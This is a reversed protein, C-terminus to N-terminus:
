TYGVRNSLVYDRLSTSVGHRHSFVCLWCRHYILFEELTCVCGTYGARNSDIDLWEGLGVLIYALERDSVCKGRPLRWYMAIRVKGIRAMVGQKVIQTMGVRTLVEQKTIRVVHGLWAKRAQGVPCWTRALVEHRICPSGLTIMHICIICVILEVYFIHDICEISCISRFMHFCLYLLRFTLIM